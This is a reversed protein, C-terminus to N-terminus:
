DLLQWLAPVVPPSWDPQAQHGQICRYHHGEFTVTDGAKYIVQVTWASGANIREWLAYVNPPAWDVQSTHEQRCRYDLGLHTVKDGVNYHVGVAWTPLTPPPPVSGGTDPPGGRVIGPLDSAGPRVEIRGAAWLVAADFLLKGAENLLQVTNEGVFCGVRRAPANLGVMTAGAEYGFIGWSNPKGVLRAIKVAASGPNGWVFRAASSVVAINGVPLGAALPHDVKVMELQTQNDVAGFDTNSTTGTMKLDDFIAPELSVVPVALSTFKSGVDSSSVSESVVIVHHGNAHAALVDTAVKVDVVFGFSDELRKRLGDDDPRLPVQKVVLLARPARTWSVAADFLANGEPSFAAPSNGEAFFGVRPATARTGVMNAGGEYAFIGFADTRGVVNAVKIAEAGPKGWGFRQPSSVVTVQGSLGAALPHGPLVQLDTLGDIEGFDTNSVTGTLKMDDYLNPELVVTPAPSSLYRGAVTTSSISESIVHVRVDGLDNTRTDSELRLLVELGHRDELRRKLADDGASLPSATKVTLLAKAATAWTVAADFLRWGEDKLLGPTDQGVFFGVRRAPANLGVMAEGTDYAFIGWKTTSGVISAVKRAASSPNGWVFTSNGTVVTVQGSLGAALPHGATIQLKTQSTATGFDTGSTAATMKLDKFSVPECVVMPVASNLFKTGVDAPNVSESILVLGHGNADSTVVSPAKAIDVIFGLSALRARLKEDSSRLTSADEVVLLARTRTDAFRPRPAPDDVVDSATEEFLNKAKLIASNIASVTALALATEDPLPDNYLLRQLVLAGDVEATVVGDVGQFRKQRIGALIAPTAARISGVVRDFGGDPLPPQSASPIGPLNYGPAAQFATPASAANAAALTQACVPLVKRALTAGGQALQGPDISVSVMQVLGNASASITSDSSSASFTGLALQAQLVALANEVAALGPLLSEPTPLSM